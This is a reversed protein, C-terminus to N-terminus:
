NFLAQQLQKVEELDEYMDNLMKNFLTIMTLDDENNVFEGCYEDIHTELEAIDNEIVSIMSNIDRYPTLDFEIKM